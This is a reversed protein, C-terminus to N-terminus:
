KLDRLLRKLDSPIFGMAEARRLRKLLGDKTYSSLHAQDIQDRYEECKKEIHNAQKRIERKVKMLEKAAAALPDDIDGYNLGTRKTLIDRVYSIHLKERNAADWERERKRIKQNNKERYKADSIRRHELYEPNGTLHEKKYKACRERVKDKNKIYNNAAIKKRCEKCGYRQTGKKTKGKKYM